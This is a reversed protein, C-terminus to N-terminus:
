ILCFGPPRLLPRGLTLCNAANATKISAGTTLSQRFGVPLGILPPASNAAMIGLFSLNKYGKPKSKVMQCIGDEIAAPNLSNIFGPQKSRMGQALKLIEM